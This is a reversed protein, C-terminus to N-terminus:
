KDRWWVRTSSKRGLYGIAGANSNGIEIPHHFYGHMPLGSVGTETFAAETFRREVDPSITYEIHDVNLNQVLAELNKRGIETRGHTKWTVALVSLGFSKAKIIQYWSDKGGSVPVICDYAANKGKASNVLSLFEREREAWDIGTEKRFHGHCGSCIGAEDFSISPRTEPLVCKLCYKM